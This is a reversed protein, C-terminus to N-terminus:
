KGLSRIKRDLKAIIHLNVVPDRHTLLDRRAILMALKTDNSYTM